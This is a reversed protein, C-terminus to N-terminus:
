AGRRKCFRSAKRGKMARKVCNMNRRQRRGVRNVAGVLVVGILGAILGYEVAAAGDESYRM